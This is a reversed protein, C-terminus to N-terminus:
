TVVRIRVSFFLKRSNRRVLFDWFATSDPVRDTWYRFLHAPINAEFCTDAFIFCINMRKKAILVPIMQKTRMSAFWCIKCPFRIFVSTFTGPWAFIQNIESWLFYIYIFSINEFLVLYKNLGFVQSLSKKIIQLLVNCINQLFFNSESPFIM